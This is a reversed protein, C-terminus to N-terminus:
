TFGVRPGLREAVVLEEVGAGKDGRDAVVDHDVEGQEGLGVRVDPRRLVDPVAPLLSGVGDPNCIGTPPCLFERLRV